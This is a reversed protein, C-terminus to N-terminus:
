NGSNLWKDGSLFEAHGDTGLKAPIGMSRWAAVCLVEFGESDATKQQWMESIALPDASVVKVRRHLQRLVIQAATSPDTERRIRPYFNEWLRRRWNMQGDREPYITPTLVYERYISDDLQWNVLQRNYNAAQQGQRLFM